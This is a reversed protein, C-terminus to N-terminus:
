DLGQCHRLSYVEGCFGNRRNEILIFVAWFGGGGGAGWCEGPICPSQVYLLVSVVLGEGAFSKKRVISEDGKSELPLSCPSLVVRVGEFVGVGSIIVVM